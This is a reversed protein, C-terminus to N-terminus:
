PECSITSKVSSPNSEWRLFDTVRLTPILLIRSSFFAALLDMQSRCPDLIALNSSISNTLHFLHIKHGSRMIVIGFPFRLFATSNVRSYPSCRFAQKCTRSSVNGNTKTFELLVPEIHLIQFTYWYAPYECRAVYMLDYMQQGSLVSLFATLMNVPEILTYRRADFVVTRGNIDHPLFLVIHDVSTLYHFTPEYLIIKIFLLKCLKIITIM